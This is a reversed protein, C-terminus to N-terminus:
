YVDGGNQFFRILLLTTKLQEMNLSRLALVVTEFLTQKSRFDKDPDQLLEDITCGLTDAIAILNDFNPRTSGNMLNRITKEAIGAKLALDPPKMNKQEMRKVLQMQFAKAKDKNKKM